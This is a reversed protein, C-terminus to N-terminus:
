VELVPPICIGERPLILWLRRGQDDRVVSTALSHAEKNLFRSKFCFDLSSFRTKSFLIESVIHAYVGMTGEKPNTIVNIYDSAVQVNRVNIDMALDVAERVALAELTEAEM